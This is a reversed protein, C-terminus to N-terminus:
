NGHSYDEVTKEVLFIRAIEGKRLSLKDVAVALPRTTIGVKLFDREKLEVSPTEIKIESTYEKLRLGEGEVSVIRRLNLTIQEFLDYNENARSVTFTDPITETYVSQILKVIKKEFPIGHFLAVNERIKKLSGSLRITQAPLRAPIAIINYVDDGCVIFLESPTSTYELKEERKTVHFKVFANRGMIKANIGKEKSFVVDKIDSHCVIRNIDSSSFDVRTSIEPIVIQDSHNKEIAFVPATTFLCLCFFFTLYRM